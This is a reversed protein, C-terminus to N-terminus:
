QGVGLMRRRMSGPSTRLQIDTVGTTGFGPNHPNYLVLSFGSTPSNGTYAAKLNTIRTPWLAQGTSNVLGNTIYGPRLGPMFIRGRYHRGSLGTQKQIVWALNLPCSSDNGNGGNQVIAKSYVHHVSGEEEMIEIKFFNVDGALPVKIQAVWTADLSNALAELDALVADTKTFFLVNQCLQGFVLMNITARFIM